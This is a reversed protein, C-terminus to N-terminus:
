LSVMYELLKQVEEPVLRKADLQGANVSGRTVLQVIDRRVCNQYPLPLRKRIEGLVLKARDKGRQWVEPHTQLETKAQELAHILSSDDRKGRALAVMLQGTAETSLRADGDAFRLAESVIGLLDQESVTQGHSYAKDLSLLLWGSLCSADLFLSEISHRSWVVDLFNFNKDEQLPGLVPLRGYDRDLVRVVCVPEGSPDATLLPKLAQKLVDAAAANNVGELPAFTWRSFRTLRDPQGRFYVEACRKLIEADSPGEHFLIRRFRLFQISSFPSLDCWRGLEDLLESESALSTAMNSKKDVVLLAADSRRALRNIVEVSHTAIFLQTELERSLEALHMATTGQLRPHLHAEPEDLLFLVPRDKVVDKRYRWLASFIAVLSSFGAGASVLERAGEQEEFYVKLHEVDDLEAKPTMWRITAGASDQLLRNLRSLGEKDLRVVLNRVIQSQQGRILMREVAATNRYEENPGAGPFIPVFVAVPESARLLKQIRQVRKRSGYQLGKVEALIRPSTVEIRMNGGEDVDLEFSQITDESSFYLTISFGQNPDFYLEQVEEESIWPLSMSGLFTPPSITITEDDGATRLEPFEYVNGEQLAWSYAECAIRIASILTTKGSNNPGVLVNTEQFDAIFSSFGRFGEIAVKKLM